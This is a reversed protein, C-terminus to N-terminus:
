FLRNRGGRPIRRRQTYDFRHSTSQRRRFERQGERTQLRADDNQAARDRVEGQRPTIGNTRANEVAREAQQHAPDRLMRDLRANEQEMTRIAANHADLRAQSADRNGASINHDADAANWEQQLTAEERQLRTVSAGVNQLTDTAQDYRRQAAPEENTGRASTLEASARAKAGRAVTHKTRAEGLEQRKRAIQDQLSKRRSEAQAVEQQHGRLAAAEQDAQAKRSTINARNQQLRERNWAANMAYPEAAALQAENEGLLEQAARRRNAAQGREQLLDFRAQRRAASRTRLGRIAPAVGTVGAATRLGASAIRGAYFMTMMTQLSGRIGQNGPQHTGLTYASALRERESYLGACIAALLVMGIMPHTPSVYTTGIFDLIFCVVALVFAYFLQGCAAGFLHKGYGTSASRGGEGLGVLLLAAPAMLLLVVVTIAARLVHMALWLVLMLMSIVVVTSLFLIPLRTFVNKSDQIQFGSNAARLQSSLTKAVIADVQTQTVNVKEDSFYCHWGFSHGHGLTVTNLIKYTVHELSEFWGRQNIVCQLNPPDKGAAVATLQNDNNAPWRLWLDGVTCGEDPSSATNDNCLPVTITEPKNHNYQTVTVSHPIKTTCAAQGVELDCWPRYIVTQWLNREMQGIGSGPNVTGATTISMTSAAASSALNSVRGITDQPDIIILTGAIMLVCTATLGAISESVRGRVFGAWATAMGAAILAAAVWPAGFVTTSLTHMENKLKTLGVATLLTFSYAIDLVFLSGRFLWVLLEWWGGSIYDLASQIWTTPNVTNNAQVTLYYASTPYPQGPAGSSKCDQKSLADLDSRNCWYSCGFADTTSCKSGAPAPPKTPLQWPNNYTNCKNGVLPPPCTNPPTAASASPSAGVTQGTGTVTSSPHALPAAIARGVVGLGIVAALVVALLVAARRSFHLKRPM